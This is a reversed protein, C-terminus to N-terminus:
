VFRFSPFENYLSQSATCWSGPNGYPACFINPHFECDDPVAGHALQDRLQRSLVTM